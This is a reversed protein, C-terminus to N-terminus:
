LQLVYLWYKKGFLDPIEEVIRFGMAEYIHRAADMFESTHLAITTEGAARAFDICLDMLTRAIGQGRYAPHVGVMRVYSWEAKFLDTPNGSSIIYAVGVITEGDLCVFCTSKNFLSEIKERSKGGAFVAWNDPTLASQFEGYATVALQQLQDVDESTGTRYTLHSM